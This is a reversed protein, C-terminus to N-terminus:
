ATSFHWSRESESSSEQHAESRDGVCSRVRAGYRGNRSRDSDRSRRHRHRLAEDVGFSEDFRGSLIVEIREGTDRDNVVFTSPSAGSDARVAFIESEGLDTSPELEGAAVVEIGHVGRAGGARLGFKSQEVSGVVNAAHTRGDM